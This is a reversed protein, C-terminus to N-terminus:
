NFRYEYFIFKEEKIIHFGLKECVRRSANNGARVRTYIRKIGFKKYVYSLIERCVETAYGKKQYEERIMYGLEIQVEDRRMSDGIPEKANEIGARGIIKGTQKDIIMWIGYEYFSYYNKIYDSLYRMENEIPMHLPEMEKMISAEQYIKELEYVDKISAERIKCRETELIDWPIQYFRRYIGHFYEVEIDKLDSLLYTIGELAEIQNKEHLVGIVPIKNEKVRSFIDNRDCLVITNEPIVKLLKIEDVRFLVTRIGAREMNAAFETFDIPFNFCIWIEKLKIQVELQNM